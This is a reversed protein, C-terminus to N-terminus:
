ARRGDPRVDFRMSGLQWAVGLADSEIRFSIQRGRVRTYIQGTYQEIPYVNPPTPPPVSGTVTPEPVPSTYASGSDKRPNLIMTVVPSTATSGAFSMDPLMRRVFAFSEGDGIDFDSTEVYSSVPVAGSPGLLLDDVGYEHYVLQNPIYFTVPAYQDHTAATTSNAGRVCGTLNFGDNGTYTIQESDITVTGTLPYTKANVLNITTASATIGVSLYSNQVAHASLPYSLLPTALWATRNMTGFYWVNDVYNYIVYSDNILSGSSPYHWWVEDYGPNSGCVVQTGQTVNLSKFVYGWVTCPLTQVQGSYVYFKDVGMWYTVNNVTIAANPSIISINDMLLQFSFVYPAGIYQMTYLASDSWILIEQRTSRACVLFSGTALIQEGSQNTTEPVWEVPNSQDSWRVLMPNFATSFNTPDYPNAGIAIAFQNIDSTMIQNTNNPVFYGAFSFTYNGSSGGATAVSIPVSTGGNYATTVYTGAVINTGSITAGATIGINDPVTITTVGAGFTAAKTTKTVTAAYSNLTVGDAYTLTDKTWWYIANGRPSFILDDGYNSQSWLQIQTGTTTSVGSASEGWGGNSWPGIGWGATATTFVGAGANIDFTATLPGANTGTSTAATAVSITFTNGTPISVIEYSGTITVGNFTLTGTFTVWTGTSAGHGTVTVTVLRSGNTTAFLTASLSTRTPTIDRYVGGYEVYYKQSTGFALLDENDTSVWCFLSRPVGVYTNGVSYNIWGGIQEPYGYAFRIKDGAYYGGKNSYNTIDRNIGPQFQIKSIAM